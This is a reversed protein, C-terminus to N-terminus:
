HSPHFTLCQHERNFTHTFRWVGVIAAFINFFDKTLKDFVRGYIFVWLWILIGACTLVNDVNYRSFRKLTPNQYKAYQNPDINLHDSPNNKSCFECFMPMTIGREVKGTNCYSLMTSLIDLFPLMLESIRHLDNWKLFSLSGSIKCTTLHWM